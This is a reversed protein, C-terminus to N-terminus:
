GRPAEPYYRVVWEAVAVPKTGGDREITVGWTVQIADKVNEVAAPAFRGRIRAGSPLPSVFRVRNDGYNITMRVGGVAMAGRALPSVLSLVLFGHAFTTKVPSEAAARAADVHIWQHDDTVEAFQSIRAQTVDMWDSVAIEQGIRDRLTTLDDIAIM